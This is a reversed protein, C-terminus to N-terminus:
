NGASRAVLPSRALSFDKFRQAYQPLLREVIGMILKHM